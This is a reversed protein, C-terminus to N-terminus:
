RAKLNVLKYVLRAPLSPAVNIKGSRADRIMAPVDYGYDERCRRVLEMAQKIGYSFFLKLGYQTVKGRIAIRSYDEVLAPAWNLNHEWCKL